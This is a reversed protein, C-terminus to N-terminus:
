PGLGSFGGSGSFDLLRNRDSIDGDLQGNRKTLPNIEYIPSPRRGVGCHNEELYRIYRHFVLIRLPDILDEPKSFSTNKRLARWADARRFTPETLSSIWNLVIRAPKVRLDRGAWRYVREAHALFYQGLIMGRRVADAGLRPPTQEGYAEHLIHLVLALRAAYGRIKITPGRLFEPYDFQNVRDAIWQTWEVWVERGADALKLFTPTLNGEKSTSMTVNRLVNIARDWEVTRDRAITIWNEAQIPRDKPFSFLIRDFFGDDTTNRLEMLKSPQIGGLISLRPYRVYVEPSNPDKRHVSVPESSWMALYKQRDNGGKAKYQNMSQIWSALEDHIMLMGVKAEGMLELLKEVTIDQVFVPIKEGAHSRRTQEDYIPNSIPTISPSKGGGVRAISCLWLNTTEVYGPKVELNFRAGITGAAVGLAYVAAFDPPCNVSEAISQILDALAKPFVDLPFVPLDSELDELPIPEEEWVDSEEVKGHPSQPSEHSSEGRQHSLTKSGYGQERCWKMAAKGDGNFKLLRVINFKGYSKGMEFPPWSSTFVHLLPEKHSGRCLGATASYGRDKGPRRVKGEDQSGSVFQAGTEALLEEITPGRRDFDDAPSLGSGSTHAKGNTGQTSTQVAERNFSRALELLYNRDEVSITPIQFLTPLGEDELFRYPIATEHVNAPSGPVVAYGGEGRTEILAKFEVGKAKCEEKNPLALKRNGEVECCRYWLHLGRPSEVYALTSALFPDESFLEATFEKQTERNDIDICEAGGSIAGGVVAIGYPKKGGFWKQLEEPTPLRTQLPKWTKLFRAKEESWEEPLVETAPQKTGDLAIPVVSLGALVYANAWDLVSKEAAM